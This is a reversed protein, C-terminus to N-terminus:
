VERSGSVQEHLMDKLHALLELAQTETLFGLSPVRAYKLFSEEDRGLASLLNKIETQQADTITTTDQLDEHDPIQGIQDYGEAIGKLTDKLHSFKHKTEKDLSNWWELLAKTGNSAAIMGNRKLLEQEEDIAVGMNSWELVATGSSIDIPKNDPFAHRIDGPCKKIEPFHTGESLMMSITMEYPFSKDQIPAYGEKVIERRGEVTVQKLDDKVRCCFILHANTQVLERILKKHEEKPKIWCHLGPKKTKMEANKAQELVGGPGEWEDSISDIIIAKYGAEEFEKIAQIYREATFPPDLDIVDFGGSVDAYFCSRKNETDILGIKGNPGALGRAYLLASYTKGSGSPGAILTLTHARERVARQINM